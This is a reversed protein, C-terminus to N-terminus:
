IGAEMRISDVTVGGLIIMGVKLGDDRNVVLVVRRNRGLINIYSFVYNKVTVSYPEDSLDM